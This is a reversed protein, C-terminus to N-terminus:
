ELNIYGAIRKQSQSVFTGYAYSLMKETTDGPALPKLSVDEVMGFWHVSADFVWVQRDGSEDPCGHSKLVMTNDISLAMFDFDIQESPSEFRILDDFDQKITNFSSHDTVAVLDRSESVKEVDEVLDRVTQLGPEEEGAADYLHDEKVMDYLGKFGDSDHETGQISQKEEYIRISREQQSIKTQTPSYRDGVLEALDTVENKRGYGVVEYEHNEITDNNQVVEGGEEFSSAEGTQTIEDILLKKESIATRALMRAMPLNGGLDSVVLEPSTWVPLQIRSTNLADKIAFRVDGGNAIEQDIEKFKEQWNNDEYIQSRLDLPKGLFGMEDKYVIKGDREQDALKALSSNSVQKTTPSGISKVRNNNSM